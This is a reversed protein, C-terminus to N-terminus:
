VNATQNDNEAANASEQENSTTRTAWNKIAVDSNKRVYEALMKQLDGKKHITDKVYEGFVVFMIICMDKKTM